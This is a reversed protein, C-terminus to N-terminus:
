KKQKLYNNIVKTQRQDEEFKNELVEKLMQTFSELAPALAEDKKHILKFNQFDVLCQKRLNQFIEPYVQLVDFKKERSLNCFINDTCLIVELTKGMTKLEEPYSIQSTNIIGNVNEAIKELAIRRDDKPEVEIPSATNQKEKKMDELSKSLLFHQCNRLLIHIIQALKVRISKKRKETLTQSEIRLSTNNNTTAIKRNSDIENGSNSIKFSRVESRSFCRSNNFFKELNKEMKNVIAIRSHFIDENIRNDLLQQRFSLRTKKIEEKIVLLKSNDQVLNLEFFACSYPMSKLSRKIKDIHYNFKDENIQNFSVKEVLEVISEHVPLDEENIYVFNPMLNLFEKEVRKLLSFYYYFNDESIQNELLRQCHWMVREIIIDYIKQHLQNYLNQVRQLEKNNYYTVVSITDPTMVLEASIMQANDEREQSTIHMLHDLYQRAEKETAFTRTQVLANKRVQEHTTNPQEEQGKVKSESDSIPNSITNM